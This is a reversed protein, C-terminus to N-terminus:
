KYYGAEKLIKETEAAAWDLAEKPSKKKTCVDAIAISIKDEINIYEPIKPVSAVDKLTELLVDFPLEPRLKQTEPDKLLTVSPPAQGLKAWVKLNEPRTMFEIYKYAEEKYPTDANITIMWYGLMARRRVQRPMVTMRVKDVVKSATPDQIFGMQDSDHILAALKDQQILSTNQDCGLSMIEPSVFPLLDHWLTLAEVGEKSNFIPKYDEDLIEGGFSWLYNYWTYTNCGAGGRLGPLGWGYRDIKGDKDIDETLATAFEPIDYFTEPLKLGKAEVLDKRYYLAFTWWNQPMGYIKDDYMCIELLKPPLDKIHETLDYETGEYKEIFEDIPYIHGGKAYPALASNFTTVVDYSATGAVMDALQIETVEEWPHEIIELMINPYTKEFADKLTKAILGNIGVITSVKLTIKKEPPKPTTVPTAV